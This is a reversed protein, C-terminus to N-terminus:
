WSRLGCLGAMVLIDKRREVNGCYTDVAVGNVQYCSLVSLLSRFMRQRDNVRGRLSVLCRCSHFWSCFSGCLVNKSSKTRPGGWSGLGARIGTYRPRLRARGRSIEWFCSSIFGRVLCRPSRTCELCDRRRGLLRCSLRPHVSPRSLAVCLRLMLVAPYGM